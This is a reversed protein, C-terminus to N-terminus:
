KYWVKKKVQSLKYKRSRKYYQGRVIDRVTEIASDLTDHTHNRGYWALSIYEEQKDTIEYINQNPYFDIIFRKRVKKLLKTKM